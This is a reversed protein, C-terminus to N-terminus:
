LFEVFLDQLRMIINSSIMHVEMPNYEDHRDIEIAGANRAKEDSMDQYFKLIQPSDLLSPEAFFEKAQEDHKLEEDLEGYEKWALEKQKDFEERPLELVFKNAKREIISDILIDKARLRKKTSLNKTQENFLKLLNRVDETSTVDTIGSARLFGEIVPILESYQSVGKFRLDNSYDNCKLERSRLEQIILGISVPTNMLREELNESFSEMSPEYM